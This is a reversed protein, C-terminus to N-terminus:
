IDDEISREPLKYNMGQQELKAMEAKFNLDFDLHSVHQRMKNYKYAHEQSCFKQNVRMLAEKKCWKCIRLQSTTTM